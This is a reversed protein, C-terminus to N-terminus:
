CWWLFVKECGAILESDPQFFIKGTIDNVNPQRLIPSFPRKM